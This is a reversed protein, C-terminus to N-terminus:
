DWITSPWHSPPGDLSHCPGTRPNGDGFLFLPLGHNRRYRIGVDMSMGGRSTERKSDPSPLPREASAADTLRWAICGGRRDGARDRPGDPDPHGGQRDGRLLKERRQARSLPGTSVAPKRSRPARLAKRRRPRGHLSGKLRLGAYPPFEHFIEIKQRWIGSHRGGCWRRFLVPSYSGPRPCWRSGSRLAPLVVEPRTTSIPPMRLRLYMLSSFPVTRIPASTV